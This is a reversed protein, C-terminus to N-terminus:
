QRAGHTAPEIATMFIQELSQTQSDTQVIEVGHEALLNAVTKTASDDGCRITAVERTITVEAGAFHRARAGVLDIRERCFGPGAAWPAAPTGARVTRSARM